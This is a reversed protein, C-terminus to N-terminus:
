CLQQFIMHGKPWYFGYKIICLQYNYLLKKNDKQNIIFVYQYYSSPIDWVHWSM